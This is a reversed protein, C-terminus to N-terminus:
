IGLGSLPNGCVKPLTGSGSGSGLLLGLIAMYANMDTCAAGGLCPNQDDCDANAQCCFEKPEFVCANGHCLDTTCPDYDDCQTDAKCCAPVQTAM